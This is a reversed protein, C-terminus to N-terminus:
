ETKVFEIIDEIRCDLISCLKDLTYTSVPQNKKLRTITSHSIGILGLRYQTIKKEELKKWLKDYSIMFSDGSLITKSNILHHVIIGM